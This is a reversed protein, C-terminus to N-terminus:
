KHMGNLWTYSESVKGKIIEAKLNTFNTEYFRSLFKSLSAADKFGTDVAVSYCGAELGRKRILRVVKEYKIERLIIKPPKGHMVKMAKYLWERSVSAEFAWTQVNPIDAIREEM